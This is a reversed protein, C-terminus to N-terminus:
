RFQSEKRARRAHLRYHRQRAPARTGVGSQKHTGALGILDRLRDLVVLERQNNEIM